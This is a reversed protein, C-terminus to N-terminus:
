WVLTAAAAPGIVQLQPVGDGCDRAFSVEWIDLWPSIWPYLAIDMETPEREQLSTLTCPREGVTLRVMWPPTTSSLTPRRDQDTTVALTFRWEAEAGEVAQREQEWRQEEPSQLLWARQAERLRVWAPSEWTARALLVTEVGNYRREERTWAALEREYGQVAAGQMQQHTACALLWIM